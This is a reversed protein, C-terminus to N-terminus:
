RKNSYLFQTEIPVDYLGELEKINKLYFKTEPPLSIINWFEEDYPIKYLTMDQQLSEDNLKIRGNGDELDLVFVEHRYSIPIYKREKKGSSLMARKVHEPTAVAGEWQRKHYSLYLKGENNNKYIYLANLSKGIKMTIISKEIKYIKLSDFGIYLTISNGSKQTGQLVLVDEGAYFTDEIKKWNYSGLSPGNRLPNNLAMFQLAHRDQENKIFRYDSSTRSQLVEFAHIYSSPGRDVIDIYQEIFYRCLKDEVSWRRYLLGLKHKRSITNTKLKKFAKKVIENPREISVEGLETIMEKLVFTKDTLAIFDQVTIELSQFGISSIEITDSLEDNTVIFKFGGDETSSTGINKSVIGVSAYPVPYNYEDYVVGEITIYNQAMVFASQLFVLCIFLTKYSYLLQKM